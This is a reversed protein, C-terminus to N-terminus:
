LTLCFEDILAGPLKASSSSRQYYTDPDLLFERNQSLAVLNSGLARYISEDFRMVNLPAAIEGREVWFTAFRTMGTIRCSSRDSFNLYWLNSIYLGTGLEKLIDEDALHGGAMQLAQPYESACAGDTECSYERASRPSALSNKFKGAEVLPIYPSKIFGGAEFDPGIGEATNEYLSVLPNLTEVGEVLKLIPSQRTETAKRSFSSWSLLSFVESM